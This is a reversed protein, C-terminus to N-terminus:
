VERFNKVTYLRLLIQWVSRLDETGIEGKQTEWLKFKRSVHFLHDNKHSYTFQIEDITSVSGIQPHIKNNASCFQKMMLYNVLLGQEMDEPDSLSHMLYNTPRNQRHLIFDASYEKVKNPFISEKISGHVRAKHFHSFVMRVIERSSEQTKEFDPKSVLEQVKKQLIPLEKDDRTTFDLFGFADDLLYKTFTSNEINESITKLIAPGNHGTLVKNRLSLLM